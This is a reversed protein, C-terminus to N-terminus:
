AEALILRATKEPPLRLRGLYSKGSALRPNGNQRTIRVDPGRSAM